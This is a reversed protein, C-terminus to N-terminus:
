NMKEELFSSLVDKHHNVGGTIAPIIFGHTYLSQSSHLISMGGSGPSPILDSSSVFPDPAGGLLVTLDEGHFAPTIHVSNVAV